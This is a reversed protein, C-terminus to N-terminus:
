RINAEDNITLCISDYEYYLHTWSQTIVYQDTIVIKLNRGTAFLGEPFDATTTDILLNGDADSTVDQDFINGFQDEFMVTYPTNADLGLELEIEDICNEVEM